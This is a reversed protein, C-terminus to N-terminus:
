IPHWTPWEINDVSLIIHRINQELSVSSHVRMVVVYHDSFLTVNWNPPPISQFTSVRGSPYTIIFEPAPSNMWFRLEISCQPHTEVVINIVEQLDLRYQMPFREIARLMSVSDTLYTIRTGQNNNIRGDHLTNILQVSSDKVHGSVPNPVM